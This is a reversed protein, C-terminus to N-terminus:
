PFGSSVQSPASALPTFTSIRQQFCTCRRVARQISTETIWTMRWPAVPRARSGLILQHTQCPVASSRQSLDAWRIPQPIRVLMARMTVCLFQKPITRLQTGRLTRFAPRLHDGTLVMQQDQSTRQHLSAGSWPFVPARHKGQRLNSPGHGRKQALQSGRSAWRVQASFRWSPGFAKMGPGSSAMRGNAVRPFLLFLAFLQSRRLTAQKIKKRDVRREQSQAM